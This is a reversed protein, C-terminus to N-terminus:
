ALRRSQTRGGSANNSTPSPIRSRSRKPMRPVVAAKTKWEVSVPASLLLLRSLEILDHLDGAGNPMRCVGAETEKMTQRVVEGLEIRIIREKLVHDAIVNLRPELLVDGTGHIVDCAHRRRM